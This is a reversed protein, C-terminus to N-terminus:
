NVQKAIIELISSIGTMCLIVSLLAVGEILAAFVLTSAQLKSAMEPQRSMGLLALGGIIGVGIGVGIVILGYGMFAGALSIGLDM